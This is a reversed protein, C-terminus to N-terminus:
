GRWFLWALTGGWGLVLLVSLGVLLRLRMRLIDLAEVVSANQAALADLVDALAQQRAQLQAMAGQLAQLAPDGTAPVAVALPDQADEPRKKAFMQRASRTIVPAAAIVDVWPIAKLATLWIGM